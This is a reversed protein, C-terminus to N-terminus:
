SLLLAALHNCVGEGSVEREEEEEGGGGPTM